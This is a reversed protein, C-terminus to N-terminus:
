YQGQIYLVKRLLDDAIGDSKNNIEQVAQYVGLNPSWTIPVNGADPTSFM